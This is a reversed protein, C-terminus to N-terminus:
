ESLRGGELHVVWVWGEEPHHTMLGPYVSDRHVKALVGVDYEIISVRLTSYAYVVADRLTLCLSSSGEYMPRSAMGRHNVIEHAPVRVKGPSYGIWGELLAAVLEEM